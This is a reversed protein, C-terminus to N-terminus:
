DENTYSQRKGLHTTYKWKIEADFSGRNENLVNDEM